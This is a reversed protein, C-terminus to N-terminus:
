PTLFQLTPLGAPQIEQRCTIKVTNSGASKSGQFNVSQFIQYFCMNTPKVVSRLTLDVRECVENHDHDEHMFVKREEMHCIVVM